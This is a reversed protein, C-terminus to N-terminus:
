NLPGFQLIEALNYPAYEFVLASRISQQESKIYNGAKVSQYLKIINPHDLEQLIAGEKEFIATLVQQSYAQSNTAFKM